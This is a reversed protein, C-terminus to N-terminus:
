QETNELPPIGVMFAEKKAVKILVSIVNYNSRIIALKKEKALRPKRRLENVEKAARSLWEKFREKETIM